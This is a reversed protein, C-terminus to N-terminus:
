RLCHTCLEMIQCLIQILAWPSVKLVGAIEFLLENKPKRAGNEYKQIRDASLGVAAGLEAQTLGRATRIKKIRYGIRYADKEIEFNFSEQKDFIGM